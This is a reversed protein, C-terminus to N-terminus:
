FFSLLPPFCLMYKYLFSIENEGFCLCIFLCFSLCVFLVLFVGSEGEWTQFSIGDTYPKEPAGEEKAEPTCQKQPYLM